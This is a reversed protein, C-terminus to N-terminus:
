KEGTKESRELEVPLVVDEGPVPAKTMKWTADIWKRRRDLM